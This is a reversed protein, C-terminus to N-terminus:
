DNPLKKKKGLIIKFLWESELSLFIIVDQSRQSIFNSFREDNSILKNYMIYTAIEALFPLLFVEKKVNQANLKISIFKCM